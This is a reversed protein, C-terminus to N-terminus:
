RNHRRATYGSIRNMEAVIKNRRYVDFSGGKDSTSKKGDKGRYYHRRYKAREADTMASWEAYSTRYDEASAAQQYLEYAHDGDDYGALSPSERDFDAVVTCRCHPHRTNEASRERSTFWGQSSIMQCWGCAGAHAVLAYMPRAPDAAGNRYMTEDAYGLVRQAAVGPLQAGTSGSVDWALLGSNSPEFAEPEYESEVGSQARLDRYFELAVQAAYGGLKRVLAAYVESLESRTLTGSYGAVLAECAREAMDACTGLADRYAAFLQEDVM